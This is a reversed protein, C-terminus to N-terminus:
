FTNTVFWKAISQWCGADQFGWCLPHLFFFLQLLWFPNSITKILAIRLDETLANNM